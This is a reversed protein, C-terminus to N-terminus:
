NKNRSHNMRFTICHLDLFAILDRNDFTMDITKFFKKLEVLNIPEYLLVAKRLDTNAKILNHWAIHLPELCWPKKARLASPLFIKNVEQKKFKEDVLNNAAFGINFNIKPGSDEDDDNPIDKCNESEKIKNAKLPSEAENVSDSMYPHTRNYIYELCIIAQRRRLSPKLGFKKLEMELTSADMEEYNPKPSVSGLQIYYEENSLDMRTEVTPQSFPSSNPKQPSELNVTKKDPTLKIRKVNSTSPSTSTSTSPIANGYRSGLVTESNVKKLSKAGITKTKAATSIPSPCHDFTKELINCVSQNMLKEDTEQNSNGDILNFDIPSPIYYDYHCNDDDMNIDDDEMTHVAGKKSKLISYNIEDDSLVISEQSQNMQSQSQNYCEEPLDDTFGNLMDREYLELRETFSLKKTLGTSENSKHSVNGSENLHEDNSEAVNENVNENVIELPQLFEENEYEYNCFDYHNSEVMTADENVDVPSDVRDKLTNESDSDLLDITEVVPIDNNITEESDIILPQSQTSKSSDPVQNSNGESSSIEIAGSSATEVTEEDTPINPTNRENGEIKQDQIEDTMEYDDDDDFLDPSPARVKHSITDYTVVTPQFIDSFNQSLRIKTNIADVKLQIDDSDIVVTADADDDSGVAENQNPEPEQVQDIFLLEAANYETVQNSNEIKHQDTEQEMDQIEMPADLYQQQTEPAEKEYAKADDASEHENKDVCGGSSQPQSSIVTTDTKDIENAVGDYVSDRGPIKSWDRLLVGADLESREVLNNTYYSLINSKTHMECGNVEFLIRESVCIRQLRKSYIEYPVYDPLTFYIPSKSRESQSSEVIINNVLLEDVKERIKSKQAEDKRRTLQTCKSNWKFRANTKKPMNFFEYFNENLKANTPKFEFEDFNIPQDPVEAAAKSMALALQLQAEEPLHSYNESAADRKKLVKRIDPQKRRTRSSKTTKSPIPKTPPRKAVKTPIEFDAMSDNNDNSFFSKITSTSKSDSAKDNRQVNKTKKRESPKKTVDINPKDDTIDNNRKVSEMELSPKDCSNSTSQSCKDIDVDGVPALNETKPVGDSANSHSFFRSIQSNPLQTENRHTAANRTQSLCLRSFKLRNPKTKTEDKNDMNEHM